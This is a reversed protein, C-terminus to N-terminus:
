GWKIRSVVKDIIIIANMMISSHLMTGLYAIGISMKYQIALTLPYVALIALVIGICFTNGFLTHLKANTTWSLLVLIILSPVLTYWIYSM